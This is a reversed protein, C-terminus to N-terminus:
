GHPLEATFTPGVEALPQRAHLRHKCNSRAHSAGVVLGTQRCQSTVVCPCLCVVSLRLGKSRRTGIWIRRTEPEESGDVIGVELAESRALGGPPAVVLLPGDPLPLPDGCKLDLRAFPSLLVFLTQWHPPRSRCLSSG